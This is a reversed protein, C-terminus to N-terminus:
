LYPLLLRLAADRLRAALPRRALSELTLPQRRKADMVAKLAGAFEADYVEVGLEFNLRFSRTDWNSSGILAWAGDVTMLKSHDFPPRDKWIRCGAELLPGVNAQMACAVSPGSRKAPIVVDVEVGRRAALGLASLLKEDPLFYPTMLTVSKQACTIAMLAVFEIKEIDQDPGATIVRMIQESASKALLPEPFWIADELEEGTAMQWDDAFARSLQGVVPGEIAFHHDLVPHRPKLALLNEAGINLGGTFARQGDIVLLKKHMRLNLFPMRWPLLSHMFRAAPVGHRALRRYGWSTFYGGGIGDILVRVQVDRQHARILADLFPGGALDDRLIYSSLAISSTAADIAALMLPYAEDGNCLIQIRNGGVSPRGTMQGAAQDLPTLSGRSLIEGEAQDRPLPPARMEQARRHVRNVGLLAYLGAGVIPSLWALGIWGTASGVDAKRLLVHVTVASALVIHLALALLPRVDQLGMENMTM